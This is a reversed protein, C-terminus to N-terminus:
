VGPLLPVFGKQYKPQGTATITALTRGHFSHEATIVGPRPTGQEAWFRRAIKIAAENAEAGGNCFFWRDAFSHRSLLEALRVQPEIYYLNSVHVLTAAQRCIADTVKPHCHGLNCVAIGAFFDLYERGDADWLRAGEGRVIALKRAGYTNIIHADNLAKIQETNM